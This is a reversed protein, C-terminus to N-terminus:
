RALPNQLMYTALENRKQKGANRIALDSAAPGLPPTSNGATDEPSPNFAFPPDDLKKAENHLRFCAAVVNPVRDTALRVTSGLCHFRRKAQGISREVLSRTHKHVVNFNKESTTTPTDYPTICFPAIGYGSDAILYGTRTGALLEAYLPTNKFIRSDHVSGPWMAILNTVMGWSDVVVQVNLSHYKKRNLFAVPYDAAPPRLVRIHTCDILGICNPVNFNNRFGTKVDAPINFNPYADLIAKTVRWVARSVTSQDIQMWSSLNLQMSGTAYFRLATMVQQLTTLAGNRRTRHVLFPHLVGILTYLNQREFRFLRKLEVDDYVDMPNLTDRLKPRRRYPNPRNYYNNYIYMFNAM